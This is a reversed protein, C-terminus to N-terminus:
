FLTSQNFQKGTTPSTGPGRLAHRFTQGGQRYAQPSQETGLSGMHLDGRAEYEDNAADAKTMVNMDAPGPMQYTKPVVGREQLKAVLPRSHQSLDDSPEISTEGWRQHAEQVALGLMPGVHTPSTSTMYNLVPPRHRSSFLKTPSDVKGDTQSWDDSNQSYNNVPAVLTVQGHSTDGFVHIRSGNKERSDKFVRPM